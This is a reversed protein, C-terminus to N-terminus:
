DALGGQERCGGLLLSKEPLACEGRMSDRTNDQGASGSAM